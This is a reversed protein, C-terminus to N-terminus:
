TIAPHVSPSVSVRVSQSVSQSISQRVSQSVSPRVSQSVSQSFSLCVSPRFPLRISQSVSPRFSPHNSPLVSSGVSEPSVAFTHYVSSESTKNTIECFKGQSLSRKSSIYSKGQLTFLLRRPIRTTPYIFTNGTRRPIEYNLMVTSANVDTVVCSRPVVRVVM